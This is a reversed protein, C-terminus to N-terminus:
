AEKGQARIAEIDLLDTERGAIEKYAVLQERAM